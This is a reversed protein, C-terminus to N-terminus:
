IRRRRRTLWAAAALAVVFAPVAAVIPWVVLALALSRHNSPTAWLAQLNAAAALVFAGLAVALSARLATSFASSRLRFHEYGINVAFVIVGALWATLRWVVQTSNTDASNALAAFTIGVIPYAVGFLIVRRLWPRNGSTKM